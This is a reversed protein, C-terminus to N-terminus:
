LARLQDESLVESGKYYFGPSDPHPTWGVPPFVPVPPPEQQLQGANYADVAANFEAVQDDTLGFAYGNLLMTRAADQSLLIAPAHVPWEIRTVPSLFSAKFEFWATKGDPLIGSRVRPVVAFLGSPTECAGDSRRTLKEM